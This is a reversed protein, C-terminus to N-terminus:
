GSPAPALLGALAGIAGSGLAVLIAPSDKGSSQLFIAGVAAILITLGLALVIVRYVWKDREYIPRRALDKLAEKPNSKLRAELDPDKDVEAALDQIRMAAM